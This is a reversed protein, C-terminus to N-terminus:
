ISISFLQKELAFDLLELIFKNQHACGPYHRHLFKEVARLGCHHLISIYLSEVDVGVLWVDDPIRLDKTKALVDRSAQCKVQIGKVRKWYPSLSKLPKRIMIMWLWIIMQHVVKM